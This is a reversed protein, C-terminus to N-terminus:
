SRESRVAGTTAGDHTSNTRLAERISPSVIAVGSSTGIRTAGAAIMRRAGELTRIGGSAKVGMEPGVAARLLAVDEVTAGGKAFGTSTKVFDAGADCALRCATRKQEDDLLATELIVKVIAGGSHACGTVAAIDARVADLNGGCLEGILMVMDIERAGAALAEEAELAKMRTTSAGLPFGAVAAVPASGAMERVALPVWYPNVCVAAFGYERAERCLGAIM